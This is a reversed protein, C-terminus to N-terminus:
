PTLSAGSSSRGGATVDGTLGSAGTAATTAAPQSSDATPVILGRTQNNDYRRITGVAMVGREKDLPRGEVLDNPAEVISALNRATACGFQPLAQGDLPSAEDGSWPACEPRLAEPGGSSETVAITYDARPTPARISDCGALMLLGLSLLLTRSPFTM